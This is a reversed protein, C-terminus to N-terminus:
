LFLCIHASTFPCLSAKITSSSSTLLQPPNSFSLLKLGVKDPKWSSPIRWTRCSISARYSCFWLSTHTLLLLTRVPKFTWDTNHETIIGRSHQTRWYHLSPQLDIQAWERWWVVDSSGASSGAIGWRRGTVLPRMFSWLFCFRWPKCGIRYM